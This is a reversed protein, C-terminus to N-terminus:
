EADATIAELKSIRDLQAKYWETEGPYLTDIAKGLKQAKLARYDRLSIETKIRTIETEANERANEAETKGLVIKGDILRVLGGAAEFEAESIEMDPKKIGDISKLADLNTHHVVTDGKKALYVKGM